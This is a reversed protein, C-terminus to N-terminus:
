ASDEQPTPCGRLRHFAFDSILEGNSDRFTEGCADCRTVQGQLRESDRETNSVPIVMASVEGTYHFSTM